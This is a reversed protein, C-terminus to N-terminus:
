KQQLAKMQILVQKQARTLQKIEYERRMAEGQNECVEYYVCSIPPHAKTYKAGKGKLHTAYRQTLDNTWGTYYSHDSCELIYVYCGKETPLTLM